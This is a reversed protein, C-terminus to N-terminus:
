FLYSFLFVFCYYIFVFFLPLLILNCGNVSFHKYSRPILSFDKKIVYILAFCWTNRAFTILKHGDDSHNSEIEFKVPHRVKIRARSTKLITKLIRGSRKYINTTNLWFKMLVSQSFGNMNVIYINFISLVRILSPCRTHVTLIEIMVKRIDERSQATRNIFM